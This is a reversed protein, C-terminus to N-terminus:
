IEERTKVSYRKKKGDKDSFFVRTLTNKEGSVFLSVNSVHIPFLKPKSESKAGSANKSRVMRVNVGDVTVKSDTPNVSLVIGVAGKFDGTTVIVQDGKKIKAAM